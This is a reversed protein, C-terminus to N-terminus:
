PVALVGTVYQIMLALDGTDLGANHNLDAFVQEAGTAMIDGSLLRTLVLLDAANVVGDPSGRPALDALNSVLPNTGWTIAEAYDNVGDGDTDALLPDTGWTVHEAYDSLGDGDTDVLLPNTGLQLETVNDLLDGDSDILPLQLKGYGYVTDPGTVGVDIAGSQLLSALQAATRSSNEGKLLAAAGAVTPAAFSTGYSGLVGYTQSSTGDPAVLDPKLDGKNTPGQGSYSEIAPNANLWNSQRVAGVTFVGHANAPDPLSSALTYGALDHGPTFLTINLGSTSGSVLRVQIRYPAQSAQYAFSVLEYPNNYRSQVTTSSAVTAGNTDLVYLDLNTKTNSGYQNWNLYVSVPSATGNIQLLDNGATFDLNGNANTDQWGGRWHQHAENGASNTWFVGDNDHSQNFISNITGTDDYYSSLFWNVSHNAIRINNAALYDAANQLDVGDNVKLCYLQAGPAMDMVHEAVGVGHNTTAEMGTGTYDVSVTNQPLEGSAIRAALGIFGLDVVAVRVGAGTLNGAQYGNAATLAVSESVVSGTGTSGQAPFPARLLQQPFEDLLDQLRVAPVLIRLWSRSSADVHASSRRLKLGFQADQEISREVIVPVMMMGQQQRVLIGMGAAQERVGKDGRMAHAKLIQELIADPMAHGALPFLLLLSVLTARLM